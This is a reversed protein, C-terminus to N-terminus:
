KQVPECIDANKWVRRIEDRVEMLAFGLLNEEKTLSDFWEGWKDIYAEGYGMRWGVSYREREPFAIWPPPMILRTMKEKLDAM